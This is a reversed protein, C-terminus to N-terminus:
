HEDGGDSKVADAMLNVLMSSNISIACGTWFIEPYLRVMRKDVMLKFVAATNQKFSRSESAEKEVKELQDGKILKLEGDILVKRDFRKPKCLCLFMM